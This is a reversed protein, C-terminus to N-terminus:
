AAYVFVGIPGEEHYSMFAPPVSPDGYWGSHDSWWVTFIQHFPHHHVTEQLAQELSVGSDFPLLTSNAHFYMRAWGYFAHHIMFVDKPGIHSSLWSVAKIVYPSYEVPVTSQEMSNPIFYRYYFFAQSAPLALYAGGLLIILIIWGRILVSPFRFSFKISRWYLFGATAYATLPVVMLLAWRDPSVIQNSISLPTTGGVFGIACVVLWHRLELNSTRRFGAVAAPLLPLFIYCVFLYPFPAFTGNNGSILKVNQLGMVVFFSSGYQVLGPISLMLKRLGKKRSTITELAIIGLLMTAVLLHTATVIWVCLGFVLAQPRSDIRQGIALSILAFAIGLVNRFLDLSLRLSVFYVAAILVFLLSARQNWKLCRRAFFYESFGLVGYLIPGTIKVILIPDISTIAYVGGLIAFILWGGITVTFDGSAGRRWDLMRPIYAAITDYGIPYPGAIVEPIARLALPICFAIFGFGFSGTVTRLRGSFSHFVTHATLM